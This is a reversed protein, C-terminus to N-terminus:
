ECVHAEGEGERVCERERKRKREGGRVCVDKRNKQKKGSLVCLCVFM